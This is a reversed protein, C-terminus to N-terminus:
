ANREWVPRQSEPRNPRQVFDAFATFLPHRGHLPFTIPTGWKCLLFGFKAWDPRFIVFIVFFGLKGDFQWIHALNNLKKEGWIRRFQFPLLCVPRESCSFLLFFGVQQHLPPQPVGAWGRFIMVHCSDLRFKGWIFWQPWWKPGAPLWCALGSPASSSGFFNAWGALGSKSATLNSNCTCISSFLEASFHSM